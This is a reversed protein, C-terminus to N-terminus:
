GSRSRGRERLGDGLEGGTVESLGFEKVNLFQAKCDGSGVGLLAKQDERSILALQVEPMGSVSCLCSGSAGDAAAIHTDFVRFGEEMIKLFAPSREAIFESILGPPHALKLDIIGEPASQAESGRHASVLIKGRNEWLANLFTSVLSM